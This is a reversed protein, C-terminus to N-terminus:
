LGLSRSNAEVPSSVAANCDENDPDNDDEERCDEVKEEEADERGKEARGAFFSDSASLSISTNMPFFDVYTHISISAPRPPRGKAHRPSFTNHVICLVNDAIEQM